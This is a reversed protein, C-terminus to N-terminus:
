AIPFQWVVWSNDASQRPTDGPDAFVLCARATDVNASQAVSTKAKDLCAAPNEIKFPKAV